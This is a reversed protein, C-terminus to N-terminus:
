CQALRRAKDFTPGLTSVQRTSLQSIAGNIRASSHLLSGPRNAAEGWDGWAIATILALKDYNSLFYHSNPEQPVMQELLEAMVRLMVADPDAGIRSATPAPQVPARDSADPQASQGKAYVEREFAALAELLQLGAPTTAVLTRSTGETPPTYLM